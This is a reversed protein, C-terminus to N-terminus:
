QQLEELQRQRGIPADLLTGAADIFDIDFIAAAAHQAEVLRTMHIRYRDSRSGSRGEDRSSDHTDHSTITWAGFQIPRRKVGTRNESLTQNPCPTAWFAGSLSIVGVTFSRPPIM